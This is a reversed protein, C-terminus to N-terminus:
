ASRRRIAFGAVGFGLGLLLLSAPHPVARLAIVGADFCTAAATCRGSAPAGGGLFFTADGQWPRDPVCTGNADACPNTHVTDAYGVFAQLGPLAGLSVYDTAENHAVTLPDVPHGALAFTSDTFAVGNVIIVPARCASGAAACVDSTDFNYGSTQTLVLTQGPNLAVGGGLNWPHSATACPGSVNGVNCWTQGGVDVEVSTILAAAPVNDASLLSAFLALLPILLFSRRMTHTEQTSALHIKTM